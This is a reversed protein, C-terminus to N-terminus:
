IIPYTHYAYYKYILLQTNVKSTFQSLIICMRQSKSADFARVWLMLCADFNFYFHVIKGCNEPM